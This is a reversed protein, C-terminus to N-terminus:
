LHTTSQKNHRNVQKFIAFGNRLHWNQELLTYNPDKILRFYNEYNKFANIDDLLIFRAGYIEELEAKGTFESGDILVLDFTNIRHKEKILRIGNQPVGSTSINKIDERLWSLVLELPYNNLTTPTQHYFKIVEDERPLASLPVSSVNYCNVFDYASQLNKLVDFRTKSIEMCYFVPKHTNNAFGSVFAETSGGGSSSGIELVSDFKETSALHRIAHYFDDGKIEPPIIRDKQNSQTNTISLEKGLSDIHPNTDTRLFCWESHERALLNLLEATVSNKFFIGQVYNPKISGEQVSKNAQEVKVRTKEWIDDGEVCYAFECGPYYVDVLNRTALGRINLGYAIKEFERRSFQYIYNGSADYNPNTTDTRCPWDIWTDQPEILCFGYRAVRFFEYIAAYPRKMKFLAEKCLIFDFTNDDFSLSEANEILYKNIRGSEKTQRLFSDNHYTALVDKFGAQLLRWADAGLEDGVTLWSLHKLGALVDLVPNLLRTHRWYNVTEPTWRSEYLSLQNVNDMFETLHIEHKQNTLMYAVGSNLQAIYPM